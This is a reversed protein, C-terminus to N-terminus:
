SGPFFTSLFPGETVQRITLNTDTIHFHPIQPNVEAIEPTHAKFNAQIITNSGPQTRLVGTAVGDVRTLQDITIGSIGLPLAQTVSTRCTSLFATFLGGNLRKQLRFSTYETANANVKRQTYQYSM